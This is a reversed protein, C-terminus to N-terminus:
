PEPQAPQSPALEAAEEDTFEDVRYDRWCDKHRKVHEPDYTAVLERGAAEAEEKTDFFESAANDVTKGHVILSAQYKM